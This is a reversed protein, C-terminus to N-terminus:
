LFFVYVVRCLFSFLHVDIFQSNEPCDTGPVLGRHRTGFLGAGDAYHLMRASPTYGSYIVIVEQPYGPHKEVL